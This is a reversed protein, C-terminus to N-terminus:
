ESFFIQKEELADSFKDLAKEYNGKEYYSLGEDFYENKHSILKSLIVAFAFIVVLCGFLFFYLREITLEPSREEADEETEEQWIYRERNTTSYVFVPLYWLWEM